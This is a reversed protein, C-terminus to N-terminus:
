QATADRVLIESEYTTLNNPTCSHLSLAIFNDGDYRFALTWSLENFERLFEWTTWCLEELVSKSEFEILNDGRVM